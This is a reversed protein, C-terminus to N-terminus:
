EHVATLIYFKVTGSNQSTDTEQVYCGAKFYFSDKNWYSNKYTFSTTKTVPLTGVYNTISITIKASTSSINTVNLSYSIKEGLTYTGFKYTTEKGPKSDEQIQVSIVNDIGWLLKVMQPNLSSDDGHIQGIYIGKTKPLHTVECTGSLTHNGKYIKWDGGVPMERLESRPYKSNPTSAGNAPCWFTMAGDTKDTFFYQSTYGHVLENSPIILVSNGSKVPTDLEWTTLNFNSGPPQNPNLTM